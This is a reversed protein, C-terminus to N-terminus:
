AVAGAPVSPDLGLVDVSGEDCVEALTAAAIRESEFSAIGGGLLPTSELQHGVNILRVASGILVTHGRVDHPGHVEARVHEGNLTGTVTVM